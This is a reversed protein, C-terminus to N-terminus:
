AALLATVECRIGRAAASVMLPATDEGMVGFICEVGAQKLIDAVFEHVRVRPTTMTNESIPNATQCFRKYVLISAAAQPSGRRVRAVVAARSCGGANREM